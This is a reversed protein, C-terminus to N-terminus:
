SSLCATQSVEQIAEIQKLITPLTIIFTTGVGKKSTVSIEGQMLSAFQKCISLGLGSGKYKRTNSNDEQDFREFLHPLFEPDIGMGTDNITFQISHLHDITYLAVSIKISGRDTFKYANSLLNILIQQVKLKDLQIYCTDLLEKNRYDAQFTLGKAAIQPHLSNTVEEIMQPLYIFDLNVSMKGSDIKSLDLINNILQLLHRGAGEIKYIDPTVERDAEPIELDELTERILESYGIIANLPTRLEHSMNALFQSKARDASEVKGMEIHLQATRESVLGELNSQYGMLATRHKLLQRVTILLIITTAVLITSDLIVDDMTPIAYVSKIIGLQAFFYFTFNFAVGVLTITFLTRWSFFVSGIVLALYFLDTLPDYIGTKLLIVASITILSITSIFIGIALKEQGKNIYYYSSLFSLNAFASLGSAIIMEEANFIEEPKLSIIFAEWFYYITLGFTVLLGIKFTINLYSILDIDPNEHPPRM